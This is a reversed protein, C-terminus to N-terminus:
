RWRARLPTAKLLEEADAVVSKLDEMLKKKAFQEVEAEMATVTERMNMRLERGYDLGVALPVARRSKGSEM